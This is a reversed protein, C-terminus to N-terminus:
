AVIRKLWDLLKPYAVLRNKLKVVGHGEDAFRLLETKIGRQKLSEYIQISESLPVREDNDGQIIFLPAKIQDVKNIPSIRVLTEYDEELSGYESERLKRRWPATNKLFTVFNSIGVIDVGAIWLDPYETMSSLVAFGGYSGGYIVLKNGNIRTHNKKLHNALEAIDRIADLRKEKNDADLYKRGYGASGRINPAVIAFGASVFFQIIPNFSPRFQAEPGGHIMLIAPFGGEPVESKPLYEFYPVEVGDFSKFKKLEANALRDPNIGPISPNTANIWNNSDIQYIWVSSPMTPSSITMALKKGDPSRSMGKTYSRADGQMLVGQLPLSIEKKDLLHNGELKASYLKSYGEQNESFFIIDSDYNWDVAEINYPRQADIPTFEGNKTLIGFRRFENQFDTIVLLSHESMFKVPQWYHEEKTVQKTINTLEKTEVHYLFVETFVNSHPKVIALINEDQNVATLRFLGEEPTIIEEFTNRPDDINFRYIGFRKKDKVNASVYVYNKSVYNILYKAKLDKTLSVIENAKDVHHIQFNEDGGQDTQFILNGNALVRPNTCRNESFTMRRPWLPENGLKSAYIQSYGIADYVFAFHKSDPFWSAGGASEIALYFKIKNDM